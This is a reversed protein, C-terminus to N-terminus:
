PSPPGAKKREPATTAEGQQRSRSVEVGTGATSQVPPSVTSVTVAEREARRRETAAREIADRAMDGQNSM